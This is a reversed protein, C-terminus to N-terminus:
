SYSWTAFLCILIILKNIKFLLIICCYRWYVDITDIMRIDFNIIKRIYCWLFILILFFIIVFHFSKYFLGLFVIIM